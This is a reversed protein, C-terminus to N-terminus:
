ADPMKAFRGGAHAKKGDFRQDTRDPRKIEGFDIPHDNAALAARARPRHLFLPREINSVLALRAIDREEEFLPSTACGRRATTEKATRFPALKGHMSTSWSLNLAYSPHLPAIGMM